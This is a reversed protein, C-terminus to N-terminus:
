GEGKDFDTVFTALAHIAYQRSGDAADVKITNLDTDGRCLLQRLLAVAADRQAALTDILKGCECCEDVYSCGCGM